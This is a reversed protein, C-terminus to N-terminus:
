REVKWGARRLVEALVDLPIRAEVSVTATFEDPYTETYAILYADQVLVATRSSTACPSDDVCLKWGNM